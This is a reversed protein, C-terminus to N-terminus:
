LLSQLLDLITFILLLQLFRMTLSDLLVDFVSFIHILQERNQDMSTDSLTAMVVGVDFAEFVAFPVVEIIAEHCLNLLFIDSIHNLLRKSAIDFRGVHQLVSLM